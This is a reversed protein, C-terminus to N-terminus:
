SEWRNARQRDRDQSKVWDGGSATMEKKWIPARTKLYDMIFENAHYADARHKAAVLVLVIQESPLLEGVRHIVRAACIDWRRAAQEAIAEISKETMGPYHELFMRRIPSHDGEERVLGVFSVIAGAGAAQVRLRQEEEALDFDQQQISVSIIM